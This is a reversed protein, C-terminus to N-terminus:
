RSSEGEGDRGRSPLSTPRWTDIFAEREFEDRCLTFLEEFQDIVLLLRPANQARLLRKAFLALSRPERALDDLLSATATV